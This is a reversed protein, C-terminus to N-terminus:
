RVIPTSKLSEGSCNKASVYYFYKGPVQPLSTTNSVTEGILIPTSSVFWGGQGKSAMARYVKYSTAGPVGDWSLRDQQTVKLGTPVAPVQDNCCTWGVTSVSVTRPFNIDPPFVGSITIPIDFSDPFVNIGQNFYQSANCILRIWYQGNPTTVIELDNGWTGNSYTDAHGASLGMNEEGDFSDNPPHFQLSYDPTAYTNLWTDTCAGTSFLLFDMFNIGDYLNLGVKGGLLVPQKCRDLLKASGFDTLHYHGHCSDWGLGVGSFAADHNGMNAFRLGFVLLENDGAVFGYEQACRQDITSQTIVLHKIAITSAAYCSDLTFDSIQSTVGHSWLLCLTFLIKKM